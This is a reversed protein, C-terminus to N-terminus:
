QQEKPPEGEAPKKTKPPLVLKGDYFGCYPCVTHAPRMRGCAPNTCKSVGTKELTWNSARRKGTRHRTHKRKPQPM